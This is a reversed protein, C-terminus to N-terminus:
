HTKALSRWCITWFGVVRKWAMADTTPQRRTVPTLKCARHCFGRLKQLGNYAMLSGMNQTTVQCGTSRATRCSGRSYVFLHWRHCAATSIPHSNRRGPLCRGVFFIELPATLVIGCFARPARGLKYSRLTAHCVCHADHKM